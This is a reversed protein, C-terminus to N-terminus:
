SQKAIEAKLDAYNEMMSQKSLWLLYQKDFKWVDSVKKFRYKGFPMKDTDKKKEDIERQVFATVIDKIDDYSFTVPVDLGSQVLSDDPTALKANVRDKFENLLREHYRLPPTDPSPDSM